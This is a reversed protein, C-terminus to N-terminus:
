VGVPAEERQEKHGAAAQEAAEQELQKAKLRYTLMERAYRDDGSLVRLMEEYTLGHAELSASANNRIYWNPSNMARLLADVVDKGDYRALATASIAAYEWRTPDSDNLFGLLVARAPQYPYKGLYRIAALRLEKDRGADQLLELMRACHAGSQFRIYDLVARQIPVPFHELHSWLVEILAETDGTYTLLAETIVKEHLQSEEGRGLTRLAEALIAPSGFSCLAKWANIKCYLSDRQLYSLLVQQIQDMEMHRRLRHKSLFYCYYAAQTSERKLYVTALYLFVPQLQRIYAEGAAGAGELEEMLSDFALLDHIHSLRRRMWTLHRVQLPHSTGDSAARIQALQKEVQRRLRDTRGALRRDDSRLHLGYLLNFVLMSVCVLGYGYLLAEAGM